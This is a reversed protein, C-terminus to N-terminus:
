KDKPRGVWEDGAATNAITVEDDLTRRPAMWLICVGLAIGFLSTVQATSGWATPEGFLNFPIHFLSGRDEDGRFLEVVSRLFGYMIFAVGTVQGDFKKRRTLWFLVLAITLSKVSMYIQTPHLAVGRLARPVLSDPDTFKIGIPWNTPRGYDDGAMLCGWRGIANGLFMSPAVLDTLRLTDIKYKRAFAVVAIFSGILGGYMVLGGEWVALIKAPHKSFYKWEVICHMLRGGLVVAVVCWWILKQLLEDTLKPDGFKKNEKAVLSSGVLIAFALIVGFTHLTFPGLKVVIPHM